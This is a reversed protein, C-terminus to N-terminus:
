RQKSFPQLYGLNFVYSPPCVECYELILCLDRAISRLPGFSNASDRVGCLLKAMASMNSGRDSKSEDATLGLDISEGSRPPGLVCSPIAPVEIRDPPVILPLLPFLRTSACDPERSRPTSPTSSCSHFQEEEEESADGGARGPGSEAVIQIDSHPPSCRQTVEEGGVDVGGGAQDGERGGAPVPETGDSQPPRDTSCVGEGSVDVGSGEGDGAVIHPEPRPLPNASDVGEENADLRTRGPKRKSGLLKVKKKLRSFSQRLDMAALYTSETPTITSPQARSESAAASLVSPPDNRLLTRERENERLYRGSALRMDSCYGTEIELVLGKCRGVGHGWAVM